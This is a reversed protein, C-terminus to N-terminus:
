IAEDTYEGSDILNECPPNNLYILLYVVYICYFLM